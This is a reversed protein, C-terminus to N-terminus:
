DVFTVSRFTASTHTGPLVAHAHTGVCGPHDYLLATADTGNVVTGDGSVSQCVGSPPDALVGPSARTYYVVVGSARGVPLLSGFSVHETGAHPAVKTVPQGACNPSAYLWVEQDTQNDVATGGQAPHCLREPSHLLHPEPPPTFTFVGSAATATSAPLMLSLALALVTPAARPTSM